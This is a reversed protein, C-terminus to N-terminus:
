VDLIARCLADQEQTQLKKHGQSGTSKLRKKQQQLRVKVESYALQMGPCLHVGGGFTTFMKPRTSETLWREPLYAEDFHDSRIYPLISPKGTQSPEPQTTHHIPPDWVSM